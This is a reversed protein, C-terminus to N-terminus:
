LWSFSRPVPHLSKVPPAQRPFKGAGFGGVATLLESPTTRYYNAGFKRPCPLEGHAWQGMENEDRERETQKSRHPCGGTRRSIVAVLRRGLGRGAGMQGDGRNAGGAEGHHIEGLQC